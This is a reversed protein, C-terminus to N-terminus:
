FSFSFQYRSFQCFGGVVILRGELDKGVWTSWLIRHEWHM